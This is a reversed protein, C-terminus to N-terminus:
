PMITRTNILNIYNYRLSFLLALIRGRDKSTAQLFREMAPPEYNSLVHLGPLAVVLPSASAIQFLQHPFTDEVVSTKVSGKIYGFIETM